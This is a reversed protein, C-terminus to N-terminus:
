ERNKLVNMVGWGIGTLFVILLIGTPLSIETIADLVRALVIVV